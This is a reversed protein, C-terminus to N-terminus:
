VQDGAAIGLKEALHRNIEATNESQHGRHRM